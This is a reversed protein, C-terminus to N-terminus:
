KMIDLIKKNFKDLSNKYNKLNLKANNINSKMGWHYIYIHLLAMRSSILSLFYVLIIGGMLGLLLEM